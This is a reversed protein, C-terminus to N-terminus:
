LHRSRSHVYNGSAQPFVMRQVIVSLYVKSHDFNNRIRYTVARDTFLSAWCM